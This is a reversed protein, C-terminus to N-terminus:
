SIPKLPRMTLMVLARTVAAVAGISRARGERIQSESEKMIAGANAKDPGDPLAVLVPGLQDLYNELQGFSSTISTLSTYLSQFGDIGIEVSPRGLDQDGCERDHLKIINSMFCAGMASEIIRDCLAPPVM